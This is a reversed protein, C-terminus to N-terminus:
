CSGWDALPVSQVATPAATTRVPRCATHASETRAAACLRMILRVQFPILPDYQWIYIPISGLQLAEYMRFSSSGHGRPALTFNSREIVAFTDENRAKAFLYGQMAHFM